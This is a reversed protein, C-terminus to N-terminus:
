SLTRLAGAQRGPQLVGQRHARERGGVQIDSHQPCNGSIIGRVGGCDGQGTSDEGDRCQDCPSTAEAKCAQSPRQLFAVRALCLVTVSDMHARCALCAPPRPAGPPGFLLIGKTPRALSGKAFLAPQQLPLQVVERLVMKAKGLAGVQKCTGVIVSRQTMKDAKCIILTLGPIAM